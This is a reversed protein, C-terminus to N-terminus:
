CHPLVALIDHQLYSYPYFGYILIMLAKHPICIGQYWRVCAFLCCLSVFSQQFFILIYLCRDHSAYVLLCVMNSLFVKWSLPIGSSCVFQPFLFPRLLSGSRISPTSFLFDLRLCIEVLILSCIKCYVLKFSVTYRVTFIPM